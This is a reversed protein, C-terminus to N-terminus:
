LVSLILPLFVSIPLLFICNAYFCWNGSSWTIQTWFVGFSKRCLAFAIYLVAFVVLLSPLLFRFFKRFNLGSLPPVLLSPPRMWAPSFVSLLGFGSVLSSGIPWVVLYSAVCSVVFLCSGTDVLFCVCVEFTVAFSVVIVPIYVWVTIIGPRSGPSFGHKKTKQCDLPRPAIGWPWSFLTLLVM